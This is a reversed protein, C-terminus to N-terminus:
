QFAPKQRLIRGPVALLQAAESPSKVAREFTEPQQRKSIETTTSEALMTLILELNSINDRTNEKPLGKLKKYQGTTVSCAKSIEDTLM